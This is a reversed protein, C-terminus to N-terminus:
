SWFPTEARLRRWAPGLEGLAKQERKRLQAQLPSAAAGDGSRTLFDEATALDNLGGLIDQLKSLQTLYRDVQKQRYLGCLFHSAYRLRKLAKRLKHRNKADAKAIHRGAKRAKHALRELWDPVVEVLPQTVLRRMAPDRTESWCEAEICAGLTLILTTYRPSQLTQQISAHAAERSRAAPGALAAAARRTADNTQLCELTHTAFVDWDRAHGLEQGLWKVEGDLWGIEDSVAVDHFLRIASRLRRAAVRMQHIGDINAALAAAQNALLHSLSNRLISRFGDAVTQDHQLVLPAAKAAEFKRDDLLHYGRAGKSVTEIALPAARQLELALRFLAGERGEADENALELEIEAINSTRKGAIIAGRDFAIKVRTAADPRIELESRHIDTKFVPRLSAMAHAPILDIVPSANLPRFDIDAAQVPWEWEGRAMGVGSAEGGDPGHHAKVGQVYDKGNRRLRLAVGRAALARDRSDFYKTTLHALQPEHVVTGLRCAATELAPMDREDVRLKLEIETSLQADKSQYRHCRRLL